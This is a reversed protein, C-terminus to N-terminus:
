SKTLLSANSWYLTRAWPIAKGFSVVAKSAARQVASGVKKWPMLRIVPIAMLRVEFSLCFALSLTLRHRLSFLSSTQTLSSHCSLFSYNECLIRCLNIPINVVEFPQNKLGANYQLGDCLAPWNNWLAADISFRGWCSAEASLALNDCNGACM